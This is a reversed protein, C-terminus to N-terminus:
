EVLCTRCLDVLDPIMTLSADSSKFCEMLARSSSDGLTSGNGFFARYELPRSAVVKSAATLCSRLPSDVQYWNSHIFNPKLLVQCQDLFRNCGDLVASDRFADQVDEDWNMAGLIKDISDSIDANYAVVADSLVRRLLGDQSKDLQKLPRITSGMEALVKLRLSISPMRSLPTAYGDGAESKSPRPVLSQVFCPMWSSIMTFKCAYCEIADVVSNTCSDFTDSLRVSVFGTRFAHAAEQKTLFVSYWKQLDPRLSV